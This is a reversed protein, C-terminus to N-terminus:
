KIYKYKKSLLTAIVYTNKPGNTKLTPGNTGVTVRLLLDMVRLHLDMVRLHLDTHQAGGAPLRLTAAHIPPASAPEPLLAGREQLKAIGLKHQASVPTSHKRTKNSPNQATRDPRTGRGESDGRRDQTEGRGRPRGRRKAPGQNGGRGTRPRPRM